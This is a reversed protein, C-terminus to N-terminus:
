KDKKPTKKVKFEVEKIGTLDKLKNTAKDKIEKSIDVDLNIICKDKDLKYDAKNGMMLTLLAKIKDETNTLIKNLKVKYNVDKGSLYHNFDVYVRGGSVTKIIGVVGEINVQLGPMPKINQKKFASSPILKFLETRKKGFANAAEIKIEYERGTKKGVLQKELGKLIHGEGICITIPGYVANYKPLNNKEALVKDTTDFVGDETEGTYELEVFDKEKITAM